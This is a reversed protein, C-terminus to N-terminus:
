EEIYKNLEYQIEENLGSNLYDNYGINEYIYNIDGKTLNMLKQKNEESVYDDNVLTEINFDIEGLIYEEYINIGKLRTLIYDIDVVNDLGKEDNIKKNYELEEILEKM